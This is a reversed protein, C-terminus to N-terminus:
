YFKRVFALSKKVEEEQSSDQHTYIYNLLREDDRWLWQTYLFHCTAVERLRIWLTDINEYVKNDKLFRILELISDMNGIQCLTNYITVDDWRNFEKIDLPLYVSKIGYKEDITFDYNGLDFGIYEFLYAIYQIINEKGKISSNEYKEGTILEYFGFKLIEIDTHSKEM